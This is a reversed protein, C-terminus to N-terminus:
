HTFNFLTIKLKFAFSFSIFIQDQIGWENPFLRETSCLMEDNIDERLKPRDRYM